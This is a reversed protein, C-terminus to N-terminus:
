LLWASPEEIFNIGLHSAIEHLESIDESQVAIRRPSLVLYSDQRTVEVNIHQGVSKCANALKDIMGPTRAGALIAQPFGACPLRVLVPPAIYVKNQETFDFECHGLSDLIGVMLLRKKKLNEEVQEDSTTQLNYLYNFAQKFSLWSMQKKASIIYLLEDSDVSV